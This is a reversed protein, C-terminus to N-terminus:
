GDGDNTKEATMLPQFQSNWYDDARKQREQLLEDVAAMDVDDVLPRGDLRVAVRLTKGQRLVKLHVLQGRGLDQVANIFNERDLPPPLPREEIDMIADGDRLAGYGCFGPMRSEVVVALEGRPANMATAPMRIGLFGLQKSPYAQGRLYVHTVIPRVLRGLSRPAPKFQEVASRLLPLDDPRMALLREMSRERVSPSADALGMVWARVEARGAPQSTPAGGSAAGGLAGLLVCALWRLMWSM